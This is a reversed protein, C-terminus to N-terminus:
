VRGSTVIRFGELCWGGGSKQLRVKSWKWGGPLTSPPPVSDGAIQLSIRWLTQFGTPQPGKANGDWELAEAFLVSLRRQAEMSLVTRRLQVPVQMVHKWSSVLPVLAETNIRISSAPLNRLRLRRLGDVRGWWFKDVGLQVAM